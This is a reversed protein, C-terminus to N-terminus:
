ELQFSVPTMGSTSLAYDMVQGMLPMYSWLATDVCTRSVSHKYAFAEIVLTAPLFADRSKVGQCKLVREAISNAQGLPALNAQM